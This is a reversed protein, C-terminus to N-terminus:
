LARKLTHRVDWIARLSPPNVRQVTTLLENGIERPDRGLALRVREMSGFINMLLPTTSGKPREFLLAPGGERLIRQSIETVELIPHVEARVRKLQRTLELHRVFDQLDRFAM